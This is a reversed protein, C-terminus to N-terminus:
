DVQGEPDHFINVGHLVRNEQKMQIGRSLSESEFFM